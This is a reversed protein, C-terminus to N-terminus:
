FANQGMVSVRYIGGIADLVGGTTGSTKSLAAGISGNGDLDRQTTLEEAWFGQTDLAAPAYIGGDAVSTLVGSSDFTYKNAAGAGSYVYLNLTDGSAVLNVKDTTKLDAAFYNNDAGKLYTVGAPVVSSSNLTTTSVALAFTNRLTSGPLSTQYLGGTKDLQRVVRATAAANMSSLGITM